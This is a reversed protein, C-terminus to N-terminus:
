KDICVWDAGLIGVGGLENKVWTVGGLNSVKGGTKSELKSM